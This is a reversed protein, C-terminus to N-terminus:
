KKKRERRVEIKETSQDQNIKTEKAANKKYALGTSVIKNDKFVIVSIPKHIQFIIFRFLDFANSQNIM